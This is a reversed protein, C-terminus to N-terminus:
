SIMETNDIAAVVIGTHTVTYTQSHRITTTRPGVTPVASEHPCATRLRQVLECSANGVPRCDVLLVM